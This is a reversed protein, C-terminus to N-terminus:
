LLAAPIISFWPKAACVTCCITVSNDALYLPWHLVENTPQTQAVIAPTSKEGMGDKSRRFESPYKWNNESIM